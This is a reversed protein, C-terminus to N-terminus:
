HYQYKNIKGNTNELQNIKGNTNELENQHNKDCTDKKYINVIKEDNRNEDGFQSDEIITNLIINNDDVDYSNYTKSQYFESTKDTEVFETISKSNAVNMDSLISTKVNTENSNQEEIKRLKEKLDNNENQLLKVDELLKIKIEKPKSKVPLSKKDENQKQKKKTHMNKDKEYDQSFIKAIM